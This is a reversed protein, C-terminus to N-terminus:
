DLNDPRLGTNEGYQFIHGPTQGPTSLGKLPGEMETWGFAVVEVSVGLHNM